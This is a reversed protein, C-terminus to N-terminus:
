ASDSRRRPRDAHPMPLEPLPPLDIKPPAALYRKLALQVHQTLTGLGFRDCFDRFENNLEVPLEVSLLSVNARRIFPM